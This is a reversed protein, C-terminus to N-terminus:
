LIGSAGRFKGVICQTVLPQDTFTTGNAGQTEAPRETIVYTTDFGGAAWSVVGKFVDSNQNIFDNQECLLQMCSADTPGGGTETLMAVRNNTRLFNALPMFSDNINNDVCNAHTGSGDSDLYRHVNFMLNTTSGDPNTVNLLAPGSLTAFTQASTFNTGPILIQQTTAGANRIATVAAQSSQAWRNIDPIDHPENMIDFAVNSVNAYKTALQSLLSTYQADTPGQGSPDQAIIMGNYRAYNHIDIICMKAVGACGMVLKDYAAANTADLPGGLQNNVLYQWAVPLRFANLGDDQVFHQMQQIGDGTSAVDFTQTIDCTGDIQCGFDFGAINVGAFAVQGSTTSTSTSMPAPAPTTPPCMATLIWLFCHKFLVTSFPMCM